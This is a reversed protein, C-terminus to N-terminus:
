ELAKAVAEALRQRYAPDAIRRAEAPNSLYGGEILVAPRRQGRVVGQYRARRVGRDAMPAVKLLWRHLHFAYQLNEADYANNPFVQDPDDNYGRTLSSSMGAPTLCYTELGAQDEAGDGSSNFHLSLFLDAQKREAFAVRDPLSVDEDKTRTLFVRWGNRELLPTLRQAWDLTFEKEWRGDAASRTGVNLGGHGPDIVIVRNTKLVGNYGALLPEISKQLDLTHLFIQGGIFQPNFGLRFEMRDWYAALSGEQVLLSGNTTTQSFSATPAVSLCRPAAFGRQSAWRGLSIWTQEPSLPRPAAPLPRIEPAVIPPTGAATQQPPTPTVSKQSPNATLSSKRPPPETVTPQPPTATVSEQQAPRSEPLM